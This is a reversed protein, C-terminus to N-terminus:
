PLAEGAVFWIHNTEALKSDVLCSRILVAGSFSFAALLALPSFGAHPFFIPRWLRRPDEDLPRFSKRLHPNVAHSGCEM